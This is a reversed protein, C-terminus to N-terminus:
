KHVSFRIKIDPYKEIMKNIYDNIKGYVLTFLSLVSDGFSTNNMNLMM